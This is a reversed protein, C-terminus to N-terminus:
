LGSVVNKCWDLAMVRNNIFSNLGYFNAIGFWAFNSSFRDYVVWTLTWFRLESPRIASPCVSPHVSLIKPPYLMIGWWKKHPLTYFPNLTMHVYIVQSSMVFSAAWAIIPSESMKTAKAKAKNQYKVSITLPLYLFLQLLVTYSAQVTGKWIKVELGM